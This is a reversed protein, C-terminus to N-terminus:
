LRSRNKQPRCSFALWSNNIDQFFLASEWQRYLFTAKKQGGKFQFEHNRGRTSEPRAGKKRPFLSVSSCGAPAGCNPIGPITKSMKPNWWDFHSCNEMFISFKTRSGLLCLYFIRLQGERHYIAMRQTFVSVTSQSLSTRAQFMQSQFLLNQASLM